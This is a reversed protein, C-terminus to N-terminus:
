RTKKLSNFEKLTKFINTKEDLFFSSLQNLRSVVM